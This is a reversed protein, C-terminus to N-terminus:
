IPAFFPGFSPTAHQFFQWEKQLLMTLSEHSNQPFVTAFVELCNVGAVLNEVNEELWKQKAEGCGVFFRDVVVRARPNVGIPIHGGEPSAFVTIEGTQSLLWM